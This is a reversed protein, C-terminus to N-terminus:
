QSDTYQIIEKSHLINLQEDFSKNALLEKLSPHKEIWSGNLLKKEVLKKNQHCIFVGTKEQLMRTVKKMVVERYYFRKEKFDKSCEVAYKCYLCDTEMDLLERQLKRALCHFDKDAFEETNEEEGPWERFELLSDDLTEVLEKAEAFKGQAMLDFAENEVETRHQMEDLIRNHEAIDWDIKKM